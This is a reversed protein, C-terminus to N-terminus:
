AEFYMELSPISDFGHRAASPKGTPDVVLQTASDMKGRYLRIPPGMYWLVAIRQMGYYELVYKLVQLTTPYYHRDVRDM